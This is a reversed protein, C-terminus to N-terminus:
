PPWAVLVIVMVGDFPKLPLTVSEAESKGFPTVAANLGLGAVPLLPRVKVALAVAVEPVTVTVMGPVEPLTVCVVVILRVTFPGGFKESEAFGFETLM